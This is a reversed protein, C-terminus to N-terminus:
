SRKKWEKDIIELVERVIEDKDKFNNDLIIMNYKKAIELYRERVKKLFELNEFIEKSKVRSNLRKISIEPDVDIFIKLSPEGIINKSILYDTIFELFKEDVGLASQYALTSYFYRDCLVLCGEELKKKIIKNWHEIRDAYLYLVYSIPELKEKSRLILRTLMGSILESSPEATAYVKIGKEYKLIYKLESIITSKGAGDLGEIVVFM